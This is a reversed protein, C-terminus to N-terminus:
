GNVPTETTTIPVYTGSGGGYGIDNNPTTSTTLIDTVLVLQIEPKEFTKKM